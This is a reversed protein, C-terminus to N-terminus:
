NKIVKIKSSKESFDDSDEKSDDESSGKAAREDDQLDIPKM